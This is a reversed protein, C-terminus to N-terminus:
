PTLRKEEIMRTEGEDLVAKLIEVMEDPLYHEDNWGTLIGGVVTECEEISLMTAAEAVTDPLPRGEHRYREAIMCVAARVEQKTGVCDFPKRDGSIMGLLTDRDDPVCLGARERLKDVFPELMLWVFLCKDCENCWRGSELGQNCSLFLEIYRDFRAFIRGIQLEYLPRLFSYYNLETALYRRSYDRFATEFEFTKSYQHNVEMGLYELNGENASRENSFVIERYDALVATVSSAFALYASFPTHGNLYGQDNLVLLQRDISRSVRVVPKAEVTELARDVFDYPNLVWYAQDKDLDKLLEYTVFSDKGGSFPVLMRDTLEGDWRTSSTAHEGQESGAGFGTEAHGSTISLFEDRTFDIGNTYYFEGMGKILLERWWAVQYDDLSGAEVVIEPACAAKWYSPIEALGLQFVLNDVVTSGLVDLRTVDVGHFIVVPRFVIMPELVFEYEVRLDGARYRYQYDRYIFRPHRGRLEDFRANM